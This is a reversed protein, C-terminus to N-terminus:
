RCFPRAPGRRKLWAKRRDLFAVVDEHMEGARQRAQEPTTTRKAAAARDPRLTSLVPRLGADALARRRWPYTPPKDFCGEAMDQATCFLRVHMHDDHPTGPQCTVEAFRQIVARPAEAREAEALLASRVHEVIFIRQLQDGAATVLAQMFLWTRGVDLRLPVDDGPDALDRYDVGTLDPEVPVGIPPHPAGEDTVYFFLIDVDRGSQHSGHQRIPGGNPLGLDNVVLPQGPPLTAAARRIVDVLEATGYRAEPPRRPNHRYGPGAEPLPVAGRVSGHDPAGLSVSPQGPTRTPVATAAAADGTLGGADPRAEGREPLEHRAGKDSSAAGRRGEVPEASERNSLAGPSPGASRKSDAASPTPTQACGSAALLCLLFFLPLPHGM